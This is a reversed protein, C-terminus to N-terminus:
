HLWLPRLRWQCRLATHITTDAAPERVVHLGTWVCVCGTRPWAARVLFTITTTTAMTYKWSATPQRSVHLPRYHQALQVTSCCPAHRRAPGLRAGDLREWEKGHEGRAGRGHM